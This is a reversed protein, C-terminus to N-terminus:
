SFLHVASHRLNNKLLQYDILGHVSKDGSTEIAQVCFNPVM